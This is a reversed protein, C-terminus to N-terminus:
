STADGPYEGPCVLLYDCSRCREGFARTGPMRTRLADGSAGILVTDGATAEWASVAASERGPLLCAPCGAVTTRLGPPIESLLRCLTQGLEDPAPLLGAHVRGGPLALQLFWREIGMERLLVGLAPLAPLNEKVVVTNVSVQSASPMARLVNGIGAVTQAFGERTGTLRAHLDPDPAPMFISIEQVGSRIVAAAFSRYSLRRGNTLLSIRDFGLERARGVVRLLDPHLTPEGGDFELHVYGERRYQVLKENVRDFAAQRHRDEGEACFVCRNNCQGTLRLVVRRRRSTDIRQLFIGRLRDLIDPDFEPTKIRSRHQFAAYLDGRDQLLLGQERCIRELETGPLPTAFQLLPLAGHREFLRVATELTDLIERRTEGPIGIMCHVHLPLGNTRCWLAVREVSEPDLAKKLVDYQIRRSASELSVKLTSILGSLRVVQAETLRDARLGNPLELRLGFAEFLALLGDFREPDLNALEDLVVVRQLDFHDTWDRLWGGVRPLPVTRVQRRGAPLGPNRACFICGYPCGRSTVLALTREPLASFPGPRWKSGIARVLFDFFRQRDLLGYAPPPLEDLSFPERNEWVEGRPRNGASLEDCLRELLRECEYRLVLDLGPLEDLWTRPDSELYHMGGCFMEALALTAVPSRSLRAFLQELWERAPGSLLFPSANVLVLDASLESVRQLFEQRQEGLWFRDKEPKLDAAPGTFGDIVQVEWGRGALVAAANYAGLGAFYPYDIFDRSLLLPPQVIVARPM